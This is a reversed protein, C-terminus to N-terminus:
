EAPSTCGEARAWALVEGSWVRGNRSLLTPWEAGQQRLWQAAALEHYSGAVNMMYTLLEHTSAIGQQQLHLMVDVCGGAAAAACVKHATWPCGNDQLWRLTDVHGHRAAGDCVTGDWPCQEAHLFECMATHGEVAATFMVEDDCEVGPQQKVWATMEVNGSSAAQSLIGFENWDCGQERLWRLVEYAGAAAAADRVSRDWPCDQTHLFQLV